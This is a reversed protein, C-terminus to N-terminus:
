NSDKQTVPKEAEQPEKNPHEDNENKEEKPPFKKLVILYSILMIAGLVTLVIGTNILDQGIGSGIRDVLKELPAKLNEEPINNISSQTSAKVINPLFIGSAIYILGYPLAAVALTRLTRYKPKNLALVIAAGVIFLGGAVYPLNGLIGYVDKAPKLDEAINNPEATGEEPNLSITGDNLQEEAQSELQATLASVVQNVDVGRPICQLSLLDTTPITRPPCPPLNSFEALLGASVNNTFDQQFMEVDLELVLEDQEGELYSYSSDISDEFFKQATDAAFTKTVADNIINPPIGEANSNESIFQEQISEAIATYIGSENLWLKLKEPKSLTSFYLFGIASLVISFLILTKGFALGLKRIFKM